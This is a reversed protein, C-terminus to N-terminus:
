FSPFSSQDLCPVRRAAGGTTTTVCNSIVGGGDGDGDSLDTEDRDSACAHVHARAISADPEINRSEAEATM